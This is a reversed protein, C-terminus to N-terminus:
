SWGHDNKARYRLQYNRGSVVNSTILFSNLTYPATFGVVEVFTGGLGDDMQVEYSTITAGGTQEYSTLFEWGVEIQTETTLAARTPGNEPAQPPM